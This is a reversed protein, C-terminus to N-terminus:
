NAMCHLLVFIKKKLHSLYDEELSHFFFGLPHVNCSLDVLDCGFAKLKAQAKKNVASDGFTFIKDATLEEHIDGFDLKKLFLIFGPFQWCYHYRVHPGGHNPFVREPSQHSTHPVM